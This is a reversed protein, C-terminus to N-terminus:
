KVKRMWLSHGKRGRFMKKCKEPYKLRIYNGAWIVEFTDNFMLFAQLLYEENWFIKKNVVWDKPYDKPLFIDHIHVLVGKNLRPIIELFEYCVDSNIKVVHSSDIFLIDNEGLTQFFDLDVDQVKKEVLQSLGTFGKKLITNPFPEIAILEASGASEAKNKALAYASLYTSNGSGIEIIKRPKYHRIISYLADGDIEGFNGNYVYYLCDETPGDLGFCDYEKKYRSCVNDLLDTQNTDNIKIGIMESEREWVDETLTLTDPVPGYYHNQIIHLGLRQWFPFTMKTLRGVVASYIKSLKM